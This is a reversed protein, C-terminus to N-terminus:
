PPCRVLVRYIDSRRGGPAMYSVSEVVNLLLSDSRAVSWQSEIHEVTEQGSTGVQCESELREVRSSAVRAARERVGNAALGRGIIASSAALALGGVTFVLIAVIMEILTYGTYGATRTAGKQM